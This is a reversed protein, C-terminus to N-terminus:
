NAKDGMVWMEGEGGGLYGNQAGLSKHVHALGGGQGQPCFSFCVFVFCLHPSSPQWYTLEHTNVLNIKYCKVCLGNVRGGAVGNLSVGGCVCVCVSVCRVHCTPTSQTVQETHPTLM